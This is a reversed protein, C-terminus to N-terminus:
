SRAPQLSAGAPGCLGFIAGLELAENISVRGIGRRLLMAAAHPERVVSVREFLHQIALEKAIDTELLNESLAARVAEPSLSALEEPTMQSRWNNLLEDGALKRQSKRERTRSGPTAKVEAVADFFDIKIRKALARAEAEIVTYQERFMQEILATRKSFKEILERSVCALEFDRETRRIAHGAELLKSALLSHFGAEYYPADTKINGFQGAKWRTEQEDWTANFVFAHIHFHPDSIGEVPRTERHVFAAYVLNGTCRDCDREVGDQGKGRVRTQMADEISAMTERFSEMIMREVRRDDSMALYLSVSKPVSFTFDYGARRDGKTRVTLREHNRPDRNEAIAGFQEKTVQGVLGLREGAKGGWFGREEAYYDAQALSTNYYRTAAKSSLPNTIRLM